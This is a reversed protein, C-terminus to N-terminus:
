VRMVVVSHESTIGILDTDSRSERQGRSEILAPNGVQGGTLPVTLLLRYRVECEDTRRLEVHPPPPRVLGAHEGLDQHLDGVEPADADLTLCM